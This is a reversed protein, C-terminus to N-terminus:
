GMEHLFSRFYTPIRGKNYELTSESLRRRTHEHRSAAMLDEHIMRIRKLDQEHFSPVPVLSMVKIRKPESLKEDEKGGSAAKEDDGGPKLFEKRPQIKIKEVAPKIEDVDVGKVLSSKEKSSTDGDSDDEDSSGEDGKKASVKSIQDTDEEDDSAPAFMDSSSTEDSEGDEKKTKHAAEAEDDSSEEMQDDDKDEDTMKAAKTKEGKIGDKGVKDGKLEDKNDYLKDCFKIGEPDKNPEKPDLEKDISTDMDPKNKDSDASDDMSEDKIRKPPIEDKEEKDDDPKEDVSTDMDLKKKVGEEDNDDREPDDEDDSSSAKPKKSPSEEVDEMARKRRKELCFVRHQMGLDYFTPQEPIRSLIATQWRKYDLEREKASMSSNIAGIGAGFKIVNHDEEQIQDLITYKVKSSSASLGGKNLDWQKAYCDDYERLMMQMELPLLSAAPEVPTTSLSLVSVAKDPQSAQSAVLDPASTRRSESHNELKQPDEAGDATSDQPVTDSSSTDDTMKTPGDNADGQQVVVNAEAEELKLTESKVSDELETEKKKEEEQQLLKERLREREQERVQMQQEKVQFLAQKAEQQREWREDHAPVAMPDIHLRLDGYKPPAPPAVDEGDMAHALRNLRRALRNLLKKRLKMRLLFDVCLEKQKPTLSYVPEQQGEDKSSPSDLSQQTGGNEAATTTAGWNKNDHLEDNILTLRGQGLDLLILEGCTSLIYQKAKHLSRNLETLAALDVDNRELSRMLFARHEPFNEQPFSPPPGTTKTSDKDGEKVSNRPKGRAM